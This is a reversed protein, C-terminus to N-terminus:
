YESCVGCMMVSLGTFLVALNPLATTFVLVVVLRVQTMCKLSESVGLQRCYMDAFVNSTPVAVDFGLVKIVLHEMRLLQKKTYTDDTIYVFEGVDPPYIEEYKSNLHFSLLLLDCHSFNRRSCFIQIKSHM